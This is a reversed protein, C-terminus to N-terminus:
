AAVTAYAHQPVSERVRMGAISMRMEDVSRHFMDILQQESGQFQALTQSACIACFPDRCAPQGAGVARRVRKVTLSMAMVQPDSSPLKSVWDVIEAWRKGRQARFSALGFGPFYTTTAFTM